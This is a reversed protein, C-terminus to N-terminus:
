LHKGNLFEIFASKYVELDTLFVRRERLV